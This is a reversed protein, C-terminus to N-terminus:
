TADTRHTGGLWPRAPQAAHPQRPHPDGGDLRLVHLALRHGRVAGHHEQIGQPANGDDDFLKGKGSYFMLGGVMVYVGVLTAWYAIGDFIMGQGVIAYPRDPKTTEM